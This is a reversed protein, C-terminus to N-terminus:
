QILGPRIQTGCADSTGASAPLHRHIGQFQLRGLHELSFGFGGPSQHVRLIWSRPNPKLWTFSGSPAPSPELGAGTVRTEGERRSKGPQHKALVEMSCSQCSVNAQFRLRPLLRKLSGTCSLMGFAGGSTAKNVRAVPGKEGCGLFVSQQRSFLGHTNGKQLSILNQSFAKRRDM